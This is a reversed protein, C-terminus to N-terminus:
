FTTLLVIGEFTAWLQDHPLLTTSLFFVLMDFHPQILYKFFLRGLAIGLQYVVYRLM